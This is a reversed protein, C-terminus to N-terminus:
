TSVIVRGPTISIHVDYDFMAIAIPVAEEVYRQTGHDAKWIHASDHPADAVEADDIYDGGHTWDSVINTDIAHAREIDVKLSYETAPLGQLIAHAKDVVGFKEAIMFQGGPLYDSMECLTTYVEVGASAAETYAHFRATNPRYRAAPGGYLSLSHGHWVPNFSKAGGANWNIAIDDVNVSIAPAQRNLGHNTEDFPLLGAIFTSPNIYNRDCMKLYSHYFEPINWNNNPGTGRRGYGTISPFINDGYNIQAWTIEPMYETYGGNKENDGVVFQRGVRGARMLLGLDGVVDSQTDWSRPDVFVIKMSRLSRYNMRFRLTEEEAGITAHRMSRTSTSWFSYEQAVIDAGLRGTVAHALLYCRHIQWNMQFNNIGSPIRSNFDLNPVEDLSTMPTSNTTFVENNNAWWLEIDIGLELMFTPLFKGASLLSRLPIQLKRTHSYLRTTSRKNEDERCLGYADNYVSDAGWCNFATFNDHFHKPAHIQTNVYNVLAYYEVDGLIQDGYRIRCRQLLSAAGLALTKQMFYKKDFKEIVETTTEEEVTKEWTEKTCYFEVEVVLMSDSINFYDVDNARIKLVSQDNPMIPYTTDEVEKHLTKSSHDRVAVIGGQQAALLNPIM